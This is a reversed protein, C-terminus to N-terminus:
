RPASSALSPRRQHEAEFNVLNPHRDVPYADRFRMWALSTYLALEGLGFRRDPTCYGGDVRRDLWGMVETIRDREKALYPIQAPDQGDRRVYFLRIAAELAGDVAAILNREDVRTAPRMARLSGHGHEEFLYEIIRNSDFIVRGDIEAVPIKWIPTAQRLRAQGEATSSDLMTVSLGLEDAVVRVRRVFPSTVTGYLLM